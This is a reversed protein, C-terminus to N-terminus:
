RRVCEGCKSEDDGSYDSCKLESKAGPVDTRFIGASGGSNIDVYHTSGAAAVALIWTLAGSAM